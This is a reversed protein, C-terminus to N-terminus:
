RGNREGKGIRRGSKWRKEREIEMRGDESGGERPRKGGAEGEGGVNEEGDMRRENTEGVEESGSGWGWGGSQPPNLLLPRLERAEVMVGKVRLGELLVEKGERTNMTVEYEREGKARCGLVRGCMEQIGVLLEGVTLKNVGGEVFVKLTLEALYDVDEADKEEGKEGTKEERENREEKEKEKSSGANIGGEIKENERRKGANERRKGDAEEGGSGMEPNAGDAKEEMRVPKEEKEATLREEEEVEANKTDATQMGSLMDKMGHRRAKEDLQLGGSLK